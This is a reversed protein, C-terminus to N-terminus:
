QWLWSGDLLVYLAHHFDDLWQADFGQGGCEPSRVTRPSNLDSEAILYFPRGSEQEWQKVSQHLQQEWITIANRDFIEHVADLRLGDLHFHQAWYLTNGIVFERVGDSWAGDFNFAEGWPTHYTDSFYPGYYGLCNGERGVHNYVVDLFVAIGRQHCGDVFKKLGESSGYSHQVAYLFVGDYGWNRHWPCQAVPMLEIANIM